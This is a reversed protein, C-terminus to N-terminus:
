LVKLAPNCQMILVLYAAVILRCTIVIKVMEKLCVTGIMLYKGIKVIVQM